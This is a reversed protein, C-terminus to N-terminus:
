DDKDLEFPPVAVEFLRGNQNAHLVKGGSTVRDVSHQYHEIANTLVEALNRVDTKKRLEEMVSIAKPTFKPRFEEVRGRRATKIKKTAM